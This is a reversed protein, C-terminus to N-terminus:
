LVITIDQSLRDSEADDDPFTVSTDIVNGLNLVGENFVEIVIFDFPEIGVEVVGTQDGDDEPGILRFRSIKEKLYSIGLRESSQGYKKELNM